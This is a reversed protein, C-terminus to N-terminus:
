PASVRRSRVAERRYFFALVAGIVVALALGGLGTWHEVRQWSAGALLGLHVFCTAWIVGGAVNYVLFLRYPMRSIGAVFPAFARLVGVFRGLFVATGGRRAFLQETRALARAVRHRSGFREVLRRGFHRGLEYGVTDGLIGGVSAAVVVKGLSLYGQGALFGSVLLTTEGPVVLGIFASTELFALLGVVAYSWSRLEVVHAVFWDM